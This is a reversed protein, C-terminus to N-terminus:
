RWRLGDETLWGVEVDGTGYSRVLSYRRPLVSLAQEFIPFSAFLSDLQSKTRDIAALGQVDDQSTEPYDCGVLLVNEMLALSFDGFGVSKGEAIFSLATALRDPSPDGLEM